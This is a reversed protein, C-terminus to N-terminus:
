WHEFFQKKSATFCFIQKRLFNDGFTIIGKTDKKNILKKKDKNRNFIKKKEIIIFKDNINEDIFGIINYSSTKLIENVIIKFNRRLGFLLINKM